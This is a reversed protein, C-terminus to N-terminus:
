ELEPQEPRELHAPTGVRKGETAPPRAGQEREQEDVSALTSRAAPRGSSAL